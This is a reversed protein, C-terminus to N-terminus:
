EDALERDLAAQAAAIRRKVTALSCACAAAVAELREGEVHRLTWALREEVTLRDLEEYVRSLLVREEPTAGSAAVGDYSYGRDLGLFGRVRRRQLKRRARRVTVTALWGRLAAADRLAGVWRLAEIFVEQVLDDVEDDRGLLRFAVAAVYRAYRRYIADLTLPEAEEAMPACLSLPVPKM